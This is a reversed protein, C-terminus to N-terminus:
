RRRGRRRAPTVRPIRTARVPTAHARARHVALALEDATIEGHEREYAAVFVDLAALRRWDRWGSILRSM